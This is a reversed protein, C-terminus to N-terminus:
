ETKMIAALSSVVTANLKLEKYEPSQFLALLESESKNELVDCM